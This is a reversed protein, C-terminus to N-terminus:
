ARTERTTVIWAWMVTELTSAARSSNSGPESHSLAPLKKWRYRSLSRSGTPTALEAPPDRTDRTARSVCPTISVGYNRYLRQPTDERAVTTYVDWHAAGPKYVPQVATFANLSRVWATCGVTCEPQHLWATCLLMHVAAVRAADVRVAAVHTMLMLM